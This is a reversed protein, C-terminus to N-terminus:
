AQPQELHETKKARDPKMDQRKGRQSMPKEQM